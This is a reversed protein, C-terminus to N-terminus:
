LLNWWTLRFSEAIAACIRSLHSCVMAYEEHLSLTECIELEDFLRELDELPEHDAFAATLHRHKDWDKKAGDSLAFATEWDQQQAAHSAASLTESLNNHMASFKATLWISGALLLVLLVIGIWLRKM